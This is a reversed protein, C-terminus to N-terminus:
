QLASGCHPCTPSGPQVPQRCMPCAAEAGPQSGPTSGPMPATGPMMGAQMGGMPMAGLQTMDIAVQLPNGPDVKVPVTAGLQLRPINLLSVFAQANAQYPPHGQRTVQLAFRVGPQDNLKMGIQEISLIQAQAPEGSALLAENQKVNQNVTKLAPYIIFVFIGLPLIALVAIIVDTIDM